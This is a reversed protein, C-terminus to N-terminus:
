SRVLIGNIQWVHGTGPDTFGRDLSVLVFGKRKVFDIVDLMLPQGDYLAVLSMELELAKVKRLTAEAGKLVNMEAGQVDAKLLLIDQPQLLDGALKDLTAMKVVETRIYAADPVVHVYAPVLPLLSSSVSNRSVNIEAEGDYDGLAFNYCEWLGDNSRRRILREFADAMPEFSSIKGRYGAVRLEGGYQGSNAGVDIVHNIQHRAMLRARQRPFDTDPNYRSVKIGFRRLLRHAFTRVRQSSHPRLM